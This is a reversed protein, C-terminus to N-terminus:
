RKRVKSTPPPPPHGCLIGCLGCTTASRRPPRSTRRKTAPLPKTAPCLNDTCKNRRERKTASAVAPEEPESQQAPPSSERIETGDNGVSADSKRPQALEGSLFRDDWVLGSSGQRRFSVASRQLAAAAAM